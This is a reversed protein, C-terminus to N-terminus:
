KRQTEGDEVLQWDNRELMAEISKYKKNNHHWTDLVGDWTYHLRVGKPSSTYIGLTDGIADKVRYVCNNTADKIITVPTM